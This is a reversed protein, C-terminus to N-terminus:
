DTRLQEELEDFRGATYESIPRSNAWLLLISNLLTLRDKEYVGIKHLYYVLVMMEDYSIADVGVASAPAEEEEILTEIDGYGEKIREFVTEMKAVVEDVDVSRPDSVALLVRVQGLWVRMDDDESPNERTKQIAVELMSEFDDTDPGMGEAVDWILALTSQIAARRQISEGSGSKVDFVQEIDRREANEYLLVMDLMGNWMRERIDSRIERDRQTRPEVDLEGLLYERDRRGFIGRPRSVDSPSGDSVM